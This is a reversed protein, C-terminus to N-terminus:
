SRTAHLCLSLRDNSEWSRADEMSVRCAVVNFRLESIPIWAHRESSINKDRILYAQFVIDFMKSEDASSTERWENRFERQIYM